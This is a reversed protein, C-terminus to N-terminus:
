CTVRVRYAPVQLFPGSETAQDSVVKAQPVKKVYDQMLLTEWSSKRVALYGTAKAWEAQVDTSTMWRAFTWAAEKQADSQKKAIM